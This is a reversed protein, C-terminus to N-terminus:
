KKDEAALKKILEKIREEKGTDVMFPKDDLNAIHVEQKQTEQWGCKARLYFIAGTVQGQQKSLLDTWYEEIIDHLDKILDSYGDKKAYVSITQKSIGIYKCFKVISPPEVYRVQKVIEDNQNLVSNEDDIKYEKVFTISKIYKEIKEKLEQPSNFSKASM